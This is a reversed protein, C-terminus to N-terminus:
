GQRAPPQQSTFVGAEVPITQNTDAMLLENRVRSGLELAMEERHRQGHIPHLGFTPLKDSTVVSVRAAFTRVAFGHYPSCTFDIAAPLQGTRSTAAVREFESAEASLNEVKSESNRASEITTNRIAAVAHKNEIHNGASDWCSIETNYDEIFEALARQSLHARTATATTFAFFEASSEPKLIARHECHGPARVSGLDLIARATMDDGDVFVTAGEDAFRSVYKAFSKIDRTSMAGRLRRRVPLLHELDHLKFDSPLAAVAEPNRSTVIGGHEDVETAGTLADTVAAAAAYIGQAEQLQLIAEKDFM